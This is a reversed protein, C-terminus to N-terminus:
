TFITDHINEPDIDMWYALNMPMNQPSLEPYTKSVTDVINNYLIKYSKSSFHVGDVLFEKGISISSASMLEDEKWGGAQRFLEWLDIFPVHYKEAAQRASDSYKKNQANNTIDASFDKGQSKRTIKTLKTDHLAPGIVIPKVGYSISVNILECINLHYRELPVHQIGSVADNTGFFITIIKINDSSAAKEAELIKPLIITAHDSNYGSFGRNIIDLKRIYWEQLAAQLSFENSSSNSFQTISDGFLILKDFRIPQLMEYTQAKSKNM